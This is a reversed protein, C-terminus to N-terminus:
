QGYNVEKILLEIQAADAPLVVDDPYYRDIHEQVEEVTNIKMKELLFRLDAIDGEYGPLPKRCALAKMALLYSATPVTVALGPVELPLERLGEKPAAFMKVQDNLWDDSLNLKRAVTYALRMGRGSPRIVADVDKPIERSDFALLMAAGGYICIELKIGEQEALEGLLTLAHMILKRDFKSMIFCLKHKIIDFLLKSFM